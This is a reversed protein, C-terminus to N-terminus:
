DNWRGDDIWVGGDDWNGDNLVWGSTAATDSLAIPYFTGKWKKQRGTALITEEICSCIYRKNDIIFIGHVDYMNPDYSEVTIGLKTSVQYAGSYLEKDIDELRLSGLFFDYVGDKLGGQITFGEVNWAHYADTYTTPLAGLSFLHWGNYMAAYLQIKTGSESEETLGSIYDELTGDDTGTTDTSTKEGDTDTTDAISVVMVRNYSTKPDTVNSINHLAYPAPAINIEIENEANTRTLNRWQDCEAIGPRNWDSIKNAAWKMYTRGTSTDKGMIKQADTLHLMTEHLSDIDDYTQVKMAAKAKDPLKTLKYYATDPLVYKINSQSHETKEEENVEVEYEDIVDRVVRQVSNVYYSAKIYIKCTRQHNDVVFVINLWNEIEELLEKVTMSGFMEYYNLTAIYNIFIAFRYPTSELQNLTITYGLANIIRRIIACVYPQARLNDAGSYLTPTSGSCRYENMMLGTTENYIMPLCYDIDPYVASQVAGNKTVVTDSYLTSENISGMKTLWKISLDQGIFYNLESNGSVIQITVTSETWATIVETGSCYVHGDAILVASRNDKITRANQLRQIPYLERNTLNDLKLTADYTYEGNKTFFSNERKISCTFDAPLIVETGDIYLQTM